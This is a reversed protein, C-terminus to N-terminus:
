TEGAKGENSRKGMAILAATEPDFEINYAEKIELGQTNVTDPVQSTHIINNNNTDEHILYSTGEVTGSTSEEAGEPEIAYSYGTNKDTYISYGDLDTGPTGQTCDGDEFTPTTTNATYTNAVQHHGPQNLNANHPTTHDLHSLLPHSILSTSPGAVQHSSTHISSHEERINVKKLSLFLRSPTCPTVNTVTWKLNVKEVEDHFQTNTLEGQQKYLDRLHVKKEELKTLIEALKTDMQQRLKTAQKIDVNCGMENMARAASLQEESTFIDNRM